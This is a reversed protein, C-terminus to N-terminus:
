IKKAYFLRINSFIYTFTLQLYNHSVVNPNEKDISPLEAPLLDFNYRLAIRYTDNGGAVGFALGFDFNTLTENMASYDTIYEDQDDYYEINKGAVAFSPFGLLSTYFGGEILLNDDIVEYGALINWGVFSVFQEYKVEQYKAPSFGFEPESQVKGRTNGGGSKFDFETILKFRETLNGLLGVGLVYGHRPSSELFSGSITSMNYGARLFPTSDQSFGSSLISIFLLSIILNRM